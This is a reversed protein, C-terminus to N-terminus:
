NYNKVKKHGGNPGPDALARCVKLGKNRIHKEGKSNIRLQRELGVERLHLTIKIKIVRQGEKGEEAEGQKLFDRKRRGHGGAGSSNTGRPKAYGEKKQDRFTPDRATPDKIKLGPSLGDGRYTQTKEYSFFIAGVRKKKKGRKLGEARHEKICRKPPYYERGTAPV